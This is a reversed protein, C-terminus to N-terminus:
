IGKTKMNDSIVDVNLLEINNNKRFYIGFGLFYRLKQKYFESNIQKPSMGIKIKQKFDIEILISGEPLNKKMQIYSNRQRKAILKHYDLLQIENLRNRISNILKIENLQDDLKLTLIYMEFFTSIENFNKSKCGYLVAM